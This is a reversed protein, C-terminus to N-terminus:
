FVNKMYESNLSFYYIFDEIKLRSSLSYIKSNNNNAFLIEKPEKSYVNKKSRRLPRARGVITLSFIDIDRLEM